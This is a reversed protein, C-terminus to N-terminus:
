PPGCDVVHTEDDEWCENGAQAASCSLEYWVGQDCFLTRDNDECYAVGDDSADCVVVDGTVVLDAAAYCDVLLSTLDEGCSSGSEATSCDLEYWHGQACFDLHTDDACYGVLEHVADCAVDVQSAGKDSAQAKLSVAKSTPATKEGATKAAAPQRAGGGKQKGTGGASSGKATARPKSARALTGAKQGSTKASTVSTAGTTKKKATTAPNSSSSCGSAVLIAAIIATLVAGRRITRVM